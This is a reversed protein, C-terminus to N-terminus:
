EAAASRDTDAQALHPATKAGTESGKDSGTGPNSEPGSVGPAPSDIEGRAAALLRAEINKLRRPHLCKRDDREQVYFTDVAREGFTTVQASYVKLRLKYLTEALDFLLGLRDRANVEIVTARNSVNNDIYVAPEVEFAGRRRGPPKQRKHIQERAKFRGKLTADLAKNLRALRAPEDLAAGDETQVVFNDLAWGDSSTHIRADAVSAGAGAIAGALRAFLGPRDAAFVSLKAADQGPDVEIAIGHRRDQAETEAVLRANRALTDPDEAIWYPDTFRAQLRDIAAPSWDPLREAQAAKQDAVRQARGRAAHGAVLIEEAAHFLDRLLQAKWGNWTGPGVARIDVVTLILLTKLREPSSVTRAFDEATKRDSIDRKFATHSMLLHWRVLWAALDVEATTLGLRPGLRRVVGEGLVSHDGGRGKAIDHCLVAVYLARRSAIKHILDSALPHDEALEGRDIRALLEIAHITHADVTYHHYMDYQMMAVVRGFDPVFRGFVGAENLRTLNVEPHDPSTLIELFLANAEPDNRLTNVLRLNRRILRLAEPHIDLGTRHAVTFIKVIRVPEDALDEGPRFTLRDNDVRFGSISRRPALRALSFLPRKEARAELVACVVRTLDGVQKAVLFYHKMFREVGSLGARDRYGLQDALARQVDFTLREEPKGTLYHLATRVTMLFREADIFRRLEGQSLIRETVMDRPREVRYLYKVIWYLTHLDRLGGKGEKLNPEVVYRSDNFRQHRQDREALKAEVFDAGTGTIVDAEYAQTMADFLLRDGILFRAELLATRISLDERALRVCDGPTRAAHGVKLRMDWLTYLMTEAVQEGWSTRKYPFLFLVDVDSHPCLEGRGYGGTAVVAVREAETPNPRPFLRGTVVEFMLVILQDILHCRLAAAQRGNLRLAEFDRRILDHGRDLAAALVGTVEAREPGSAGQDPIDALVARVERPDIVDTKKLARTM